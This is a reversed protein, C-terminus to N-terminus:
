QNLYWTKFCWHSSRLLFNLNGKCGPKVTTGNFLTPLFNIRSPRENVIYCWWCAQGTALINREDSCKSPQRNSNWASFSRVIEMALPVRLSLAANVLARHYDRDQASDVLNRTNIGIRINEEWRGEPRGLPKNRTPKSTLFKFASRGEEM